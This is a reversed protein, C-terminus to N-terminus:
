SNDYPTRNDFEHIGYKNHDKAVKVDFGKARLKRQVVKEPLGSRSRVFVSNYRGANNFLLSNQNPFLSDVEDILEQM